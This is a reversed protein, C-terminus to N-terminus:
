VEGFGARSKAEAPIQQGTIGDSKSRMIVKKM